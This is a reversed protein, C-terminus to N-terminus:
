ALEVFVDPDLRVIGVHGLWFHRVRRRLRGSLAVLESRRSVLTNGLALRHRM